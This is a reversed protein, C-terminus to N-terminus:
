LLIVIVRGLNTGGMTRLHVDEEKSPKPTHVVDQENTYRVGHEVWGNRLSGTEGIHASHPPIGRTWRTSTGVDDHAAHGDVCGHGMESDVAHSGSDM